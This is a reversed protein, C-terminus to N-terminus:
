YAAALFTGHTIVVEIAVVHLESNFGIYTGYVLAPLLLFWADVVHDRRIWRDFNVYIWGLHLVWRRTQRVLETLPEPNPNM